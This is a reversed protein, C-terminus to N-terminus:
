RAIFKDTLSKGFMSTSGVATAVQKTSTFPSHGMGINGSSDEWVLGYWQIENAQARKHLAGIPSSEETEPAKRTKLVRLEEKLAETEKLANEYKTSLGDRAAKLLRLESVYPDVGPVNITLKQNSPFLDNRQVKLISESALRKETEAHRLEAEAVLADLLGKKSTHKKAMQKRFAVANFKPVYTENM